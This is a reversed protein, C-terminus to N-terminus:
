DVGKLQTIKSYLEEDTDLLDELTEVCQQLYDDSRLIDLMDAKLLSLKHRAAALDPFRNFLEVELEALKVGTSYNWIYTRAAKYLQVYAHQIDSVNIM